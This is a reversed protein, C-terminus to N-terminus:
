FTFATHTIGSLQITQILISNSGSQSTHAPSEALNTETRTKKFAILADPSNEWKVSLYVSNLHTTQLLPLPPVM